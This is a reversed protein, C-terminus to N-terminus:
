LWAEREPLARRGCRFQRQTVFHVISPVVLVGTTPLAGVHAEHHEHPEVGSHHSPGAVNVISLDLDVHHCCSGGCPSTFPWARDFLPLEEV